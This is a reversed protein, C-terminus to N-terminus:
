FDLLGDGPGLFSFAKAAAVKHSFGAGISEKLRGRVHFESAKGIADRQRKKRM